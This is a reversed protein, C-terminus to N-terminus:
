SHLQIGGSVGSGQGMGLDFDAGFSLGALRGDKGSIGVKRTFNVGVNCSLVIDLSISSRIHGAIKTRVSGDFRVNSGINALIGGLSNVNGLVGGSLGVAGRGGIHCCVNGLVGSSVRGDHAVLGDLNM